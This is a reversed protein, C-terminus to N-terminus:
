CGVYWSAVERWAGPAVRAVFVGGGGDRYDGDLLLVPRRPQGALLGGGYSLTVVQDTYDASVQRFAVTWADARAGLPREAVLFIREDIPDNGELRTRWAQAVIIEVGDHEVREAAVRMPADRFLATSDSSTELALRLATSDPHLTDARTPGPLRRPTWPDTSGRPVGITWGEGVTRAAAFPVRLAYADCGEEIANALLLSDLDDTRPITIEGTKEGGGLLDFPVDGRAFARPAVFPSPEGFFTSDEISIRGLVGGGEAPRLVGPVDALSRAQDPPAKPPTYHVSATDVAPTSGARALGSQARSPVLSRWGDDALLVAALTAALALLLLLRRNTM